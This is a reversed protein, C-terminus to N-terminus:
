AAEEVLLLATPYIAVFPRNHSSMRGCRSNSQRMAAAM